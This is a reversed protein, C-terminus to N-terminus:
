FSSIESRRLLSIISLIRTAFVFASILKATSRLQDAGKNECLWFGTKERHPENIDRYLVRMIARIHMNIDYFYHLYFGSLAHVQLSVFMPAMKFVIFIIM